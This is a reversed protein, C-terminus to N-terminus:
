KCFIWNARLTDSGGLKWVRLMPYRFNYPVYGGTFTKVKVATGNITDTLVDADIIYPLSDTIFTEFAYVKTGLDKNSGGLTVKVSDSLSSADFTVSWKYSSVDITKFPSYVPQIVTDEGSIEAIPLVVNWTYQIQASLKVTIVTFILIILKKFM